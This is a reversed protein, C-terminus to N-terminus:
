RIREVLPEKGLLGAAAIPVFQHAEGIGEAQTELDRGGNMSVVLVAPSKAFGFGM